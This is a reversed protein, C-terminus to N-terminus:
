VKRGGKLNDMLAQLEDMKGEAALKAQQPWSTPNMFQLGNAILIANIDEFKTAALQSFTKIGQAQLLKNVKPGIGELITLDDPLVTMEPMKATDPIVPPAIIEATDPITSTETFLAADPLVPTDTLVSADPLDPNEPEVVPNEEPIKPNDPMVPTEKLSPTDTVIPVNSARTTEPFEVTETTLPSEPKTPTNQIESTEPLTINVARTATEKVQLIEEHKHEIHFKEPGQRAFRTLLWWVILIVAVVILLGVWDNM